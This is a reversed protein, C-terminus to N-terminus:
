AGGGNLVFEDGDPVYLLNTSVRNLKMRGATDVAIFNDLTSSYVGGLVTDTAIELANMTTANKGSDVINGNADFVPINGNTFSSPKTVYNNLNVSTDGIQTIAGGILMYEKYQDGLPANTDLMMYITHEDANAVEPLTTVIERKLHGANAVSSDVYAKTAADNSNTPPGVLTLTGTMTGGSRSLKSNVLETLDTFAGDSIVTQVWILKGDVVKAELNKPLPTDQTVIVETYKKTTPNFTYYSEGYNGVTIEGKNNLFVTKNDVNKSQNIYELQSYTKSGDGMKLLGTDIEAGIEGKALIPDKTRWASATDNRIILTANVSHQSM